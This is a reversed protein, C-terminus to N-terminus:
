TEFGSATAASMTWAAFATFALIALAQRPLIGGGAERQPRRRSFDRL